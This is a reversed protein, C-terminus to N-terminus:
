IIRYSRMIDLPEIVHYDRSQNAYHVLVVVTILTNKEFGFFSKSLQIFM